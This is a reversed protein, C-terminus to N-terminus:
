DNEPMSMKLAVIECSYKDEGSKSVWKYYRLKGIVELFVGKRIKSFDLMGRSSWAAINHWMTEEKYLGDKGKYAEHTALPFRIVTVGELDTVKPDSGVHGRLEVKNLTREM